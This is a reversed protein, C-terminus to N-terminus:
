DEKALLLSYYRSGCHGDRKFPDEPFALFKLLVDTDVSGRNICRSNPFALACACEIDLDYVLFILMLFTSVLSELIPHSFVDYFTLTHVMFFSRIM